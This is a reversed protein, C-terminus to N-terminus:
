RRILLRAAANIREDFGYDDRNVANNLVIMEGFERWHDVIGRLAVEIREARCESCDAAIREHVCLRGNWTYDIKDSM